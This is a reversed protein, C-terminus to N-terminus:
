RVPLAYPWQRRFPEQACRRACTVAEPPDFASCRLVRTPEGLWGRAFDAEVERELHGCWITRRVTGPARRPWLVSDM